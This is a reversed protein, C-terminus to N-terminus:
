LAPDNVNGAYNPNHARFLTLNTGANYDVAGLWDWGSNIGLLSWDAPNSLWDGMVYIFVDFPNGADILGNGGGNFTM